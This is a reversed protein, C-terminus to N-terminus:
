PAAAPPEVAPRDPYALRYRALEADAEATRGAARLAAITRLWEEPSRQAPARAATVGEAAAELRATSKAAPVAADQVPASADAVAATAIAPSPPPAPAVYAPPVPATSAPPAAALEAPAQPAPKAVSAVTAATTAAALPSAVKPPRPVREGHRVQLALGVAVVIMAAASAPLWWSPRRRQLAGHANARIRADLLPPISEDDLARYTRTVASDRRLFDALEKDHQENM